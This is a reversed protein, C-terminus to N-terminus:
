RHAAELSVGYKQHHKGYRFLQTYDPQSAQLLGQIGSWIQKAPLRGRRMYNGFLCVFFVANWFAIFLWSNAVIGVGALILLNGLYLPNRCHSFIGSQVLKEAYVQKKKGGRKIYVLGVTLARLTQGSLTVAIGVFIEWIKAQENHFIPWIKWLLAVYLGAPFPMVTGSFFTGTKLMMKVAIVGCFNYWKFFIDCYRFGEKLLLERNEQLKYPILVNELAERKQAIEM